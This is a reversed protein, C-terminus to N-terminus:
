DWLFLHLHKFYFLLYKQLLGLHIKICRAQEEMTERLYDVTQNTKEVIRRQEKLVRRQENVVNRLSTEEIVSTLNDILIRQDNNLQKLEEIQSNYKNGMDKLKIYINEVLTETNVVILVTAVIFSSFMMKSIMTTNM